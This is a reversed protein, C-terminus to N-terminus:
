AVSARPSDAKVGLLARIADETQAYAGEGFHTLRRQGIRDHLYFAPWYHNDFSQWTARNADLAVPYTIANEAVYKAVAKPDAEYSFEPTHVSLVVLGDPGYRAFWAKVWPQTNRCNVCGFTWFDYLVVKGALSSADLPETNLWDSAHIAPTDKRLIPLDNASTFTAAPAVDNASTRRAVVVGVIAAVVVLGLLVRSLRPTM